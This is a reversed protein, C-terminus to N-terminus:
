KPPALQPLAAAFEEWTPADFAPNVLQNLQTLTCRHLQDRVTAPIDGLRRYLFQVLHGSFPTIGWM